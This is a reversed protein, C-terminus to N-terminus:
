RLRRRLGNIFFTPSGAVGSRVGSMFDRKVRDRFRQAVLDDEFRVVDLRLEHALKRVLEPGLEAQNEFLPTDSGFGAAALASVGSHRPRNATSSARLSRRM